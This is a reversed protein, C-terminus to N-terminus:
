IKRKDIIKELTTIKEILQQPGDKPWQINPWLKQDANIEDIMM